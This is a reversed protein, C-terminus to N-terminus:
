TQKQLLQNMMQEFEPFSIEGDGDLDMERIMDKFMEDNQSQGASGFIDRVEEFSITGNGNKDFMNFAARMRDKNLMKQKDM